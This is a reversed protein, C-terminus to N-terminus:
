FFLMAHEFEPRAMRSVRQAPLPMWAPQQVQFIGVLRVVQRAILPHPFFRVIKALPHQGIDRSDGESHCQHRDSQPEGFVDSIQAPALVAHQQSPPITHLDAQRM